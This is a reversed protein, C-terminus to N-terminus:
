EDLYSYLNKLYKADHRKSITVPALDLSAFEDMVEDIKRYNMAKQALLLSKKEPILNILRLMKRKLTNDEVGKKVIEVTDAKKRFAGFPVVQTFVDLFIEQSKESLAEIQKSTDSEDTYARIAIPKTLRVEARLIGKSQEVLYKLGKQTADTNKLLGELDYILFDIRNSNGELCFNKIGDFSKYSVPSFGKVKGVRKLVKLYAAVNERRRVNIDVSFAAKSLIFDNLQYKSGFYEDVRKELKRVLKAPNSEISGLVVHQEVLLTIRKKYQSERFLVKIGKQVISLDVYEGDQEYLCDSKSNARNLVKQFKESDLVMTLEFTNNVHM